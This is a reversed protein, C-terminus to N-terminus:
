CDERMIQIYPNAKYPNAKYPNEMAIITIEYSNGRAATSVECTNKRFILLKQKEPKALERRFYSFM